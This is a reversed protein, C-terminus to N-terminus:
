DQDKLLQRLGELGGSILEIHAEIKAAEQLDQDILQDLAKAKDASIICAEELTAEAYFGLGVSVYVRSTDPIEAQM